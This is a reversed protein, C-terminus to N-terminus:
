GAAALERVARACGLLDEGTADPAEYGDLLRQEDRSVWATRLGARKAGHVDWGHAAVLCAQEPRLQLQALGHRYVERAPKYHGIEDCGLVREFRARLEARELAQEATGRASNTLVALRLGAEALLALAEAADPFPPMQGARAMAEVVLSEREDDHGLQALRRRLAAEVYDGFPRTPGSIEDAMAQLVAQELIRLAADRGGFREPLPAAIAGPDLLTGNLDFIVAQVPM